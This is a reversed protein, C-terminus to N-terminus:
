LLEDIQATSVTKKAKSKGTLKVEIEVAEAALKARFTQPSNRNEQIERVKAMKEGETM